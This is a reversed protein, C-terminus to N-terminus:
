VLIQCFQKYTSKINAIQAVFDKKKLEKMKLQPEIPM